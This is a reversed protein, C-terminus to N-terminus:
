LHGQFVCYGTVSRRTTTCTAWDFDSFIKIQIDNTPAFFLSNSPSAKIYKLIHQAAQQHHTTPAQVFQSLLHMFYSIDPRCNALYLLKGILRIYYDLNTILDAKEFLIKTNNM